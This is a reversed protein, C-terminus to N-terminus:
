KELEARGADTIRCYRGHEIFESLGLSVLRNQVKARHGGYTYTPGHNKQMQLEWRQPVTLKLTDM